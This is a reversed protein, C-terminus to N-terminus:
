RRVGDETPQLADAAGLLRAADKLFAGIDAGTTGEAFEVHWASGETLSRCAAAARSIAARAAAIADALQLQAADIAAAHELDLAHAIDTEANSM